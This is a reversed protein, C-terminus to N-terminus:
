RNALFPGIFQLSSPISEAIQSFLIQFARLSRPELCRQLSTWRPLLRTLKASSFRSSKFPAPELTNAITALRMAEGAQTSRMWSCPPHIRCTPPSTRESKSQVEAPTLPPMTSGEFGIGLLVM